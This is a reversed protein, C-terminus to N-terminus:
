AKSQMRTFGGDGQLWKNVSHSKAATECKLLIIHSSRQTNQTSHSNTIGGGVCLWGCVCDKLERHWVMSKHKAQIFFHDCDLGNFNTISFYLYKCLKLRCLQLLSACILLFSSVTCHKEGFHLAGSNPSGTVSLFLDLWHFLTWGYKIQEPSVLFIPNHNKKKAHAKLFTRKKTKKLCNIGQFLNATVPWVLDCRPLSREEKWHIEHDLNVTM